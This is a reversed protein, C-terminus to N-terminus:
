ALIWLAFLFALAIAAAWAVASTLANSTIPKYNELFGQAFAQWASGADKPFPQQSRQLQSGQRVETEKEAALLSQSERRIQHQRGM